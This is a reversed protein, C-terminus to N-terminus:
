EERNRKRPVATAHGEQPLWRDPRRRRPRRRALLIVGIWWHWIIALMAALTAPGLPRSSRATVAPTEASGATATSDDGFCQEIRALLGPPMEDNRCKAAIM